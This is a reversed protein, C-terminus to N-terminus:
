NIKFSKTLKLWDELSLTEARREPQVNNNLLWSEVEGRNLKLKKSLNNALQKRPQSFGAKVVEFFLETETKTLGLKAFPTIEIIAADVKPSPWFSSKSIYSLIKTKAYLQVSVALISMEPPKATIRQAVEKQIILVMKQPKQEATELFRRIIPATLYFPLNAVVKYKTLGRPPDFKRADSEIIELNKDEPFLDKLVKAMRPDKEIAIVQKTRCVLSKTLFGLGPGIEIVTDEDEIEASEVTKRIVSEDVLFNQGLGKSPPFGYDKALNKAQERLFHTM